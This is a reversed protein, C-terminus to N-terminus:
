QFRWPDPSRPTDHVQDGYGCVIIARQRVVSLDIRRGDGRQLPQLGATALKQHDRAAFQRAEFVNKVAEVQKVHNDRLVARQEVEWLRLLLAEHRDRRRRFQYLGGPITWWTAGNQFDPSAPASSDAPAYQIAMQAMDCAGMAATAASRSVLM